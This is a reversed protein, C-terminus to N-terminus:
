GAERWVRGALDDFERWALARRADTEM